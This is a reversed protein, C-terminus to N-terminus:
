PIIVFITGCGNFCGSVGGAAAVGYLRGKSDRVLGAYPYAGDRGGGFRHLLTLAGTAGLEFATGVGHTGGNQTTGYLNGNSDRVLSATPNAGDPGAFTHLVTEQRMAINLKFM